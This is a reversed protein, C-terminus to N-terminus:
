IVKYWKKSEIDKKANNLDQSLTHMQKQTNEQCFAINQATGEKGEMCKTFIDKELEPLEKLQSKVKTLQINLDSKKNLYIFVFM